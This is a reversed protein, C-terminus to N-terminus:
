PAPPCALSANASGPLSKADIIPSNDGEVIRYHFPFPSYYTM